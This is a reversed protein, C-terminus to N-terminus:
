KPDADLSLHSTGLDRKTTEFNVTRLLRSSGDKRKGLSKKRARLRFKGELQPTGLNAADHSTHFMGHGKIHIYPTNKDAGYYLRVGEAGHPADHYIDPTNEGKWENNMRTLIGSREIYASTEPKEKKSKPSVIWGHKPHNMVAIQGFMSSHGNKIGLNHENGTKDKFKFDPQTPHFGAGKVETDGSEVSQGHKKLKDAVSQEYDTAKRNRHTVGANGTEILYDILM